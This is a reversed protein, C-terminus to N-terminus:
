EDNGDNKEESEAEPRVVSRAAGRSILFGGAAAFFVAAALAALSPGLLESLEIYLACGAAIFAAVVLLGGFFFLMMGRVAIATQLRLERGEAEILDFFSVIVRSLRNM